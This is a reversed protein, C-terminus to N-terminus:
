EATRMARAEAECAMRDADFVSLGAKNAMGWANRWARAARQSCVNPKRTTFFKFM